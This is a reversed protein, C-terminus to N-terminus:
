DLQRSEVIFGVKFKMKGSLEDGRALSPSSSLEDSSLAQQKAISKREDFDEDRKSKKKMLKSMKDDNAIRAQDRVSTDCDTRSQMSLSGDLTDDDEDISHESM